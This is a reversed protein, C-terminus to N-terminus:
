DHPVWELGGNLRRLKGVGPYPMHATILVADTELADKALTERSELMKARDRGPWIWDLHAVEAAHHFLDGLYFATKGISEIRVIAHGPTEGPSPIMHIGPAAEHEGDVLDLLNQEMLVPLHTNFASDPQSKGPGDTWDAEKLFHRANPFVPIRRSDREVTAGMIHDGHAHSFVVTTIQKPSVGIDALSSILSATQTIPFDRDLASRAPHPEGFGTDLLISHGEIAVHIVNMGITFRGESDTEVLRTLEAEDV